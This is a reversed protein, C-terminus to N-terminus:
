SLTRVPEPLMSLGARSTRVAQTPSRGSASAFSSALSASMKWCNPSTSVIVALTFGVLTWPGHLDHANTPKTATWDAM